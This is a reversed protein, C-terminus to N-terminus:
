LPFTNLRWGTPKTPLAISWLAPLRLGLWWVVSLTMFYRLLSLVTKAKVHKFAFDGGPPESASWM